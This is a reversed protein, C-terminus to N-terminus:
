GKQKAMVQRITSILTPFEFPKPMVAKFGYKEYESMVADTSYGSSVIAKIEPDFKVLEAMAEQGGMGGTVTLDM